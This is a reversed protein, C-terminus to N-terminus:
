KLQEEIKYLVGGAISPEPLMYKRASIDVETKNEKTKVELRVLAKNVTASILGDARNDSTVDGMEQLVALSVNYVKDFSASFVQQVSDKGIFASAIAVPVIGVGTMMAAGYIAAGQIGAAKMPESLILAVLQQVSTINKYTKDINIENVKIAPLGPVSYDKMVLKGIGLRLEDIVFPMQRAPKAPEKEKVKEKAPPQKAVKLADVNLKGEQNTELTMEKLAFEANRLHLKGKLLAGTNLAVRIKGIDILAAKSFGEPNYIRFGTIEVSQGLLRLRFGDMEVPAGVMKSVAVTVVGKIVEDKVIGLVVLGILIVGIIILIKKM